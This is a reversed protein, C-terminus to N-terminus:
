ARHRHSIPPRSLTNATGGPNPACFVRLRIASPAPPLSPDIGALRTRRHRWRMWFRIGFIALVLFAFVLLPWPDLGYGITKQTAPTHIDRLQAFVEEPTM